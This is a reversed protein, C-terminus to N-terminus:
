AFANERLMFAGHTPAANFIAIIVWIRHDFRFWAGVYKASNWKLQAISQTQTSKKRISAVASKTM